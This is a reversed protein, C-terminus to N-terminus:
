FYMLYTFNQIHQFGKYGFHPHKYGGKVWRYGPRNRAKTQVFTLESVTYVIKNLNGLGGSLTMIEGIEKIKHMQSPYGWM